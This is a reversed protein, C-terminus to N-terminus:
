KPNLIKVVAQLHQPANKITADKEQLQMQMTAIQQEQVTLRKQLETIESTKNDCASALAALKGHLKEIITLLSQVTKQEEEFDKLPVFHIRPTVQNAFSTNITTQNNPNNQSVLDTINSAQNSYTSNVVPQNNQNNQSVLLSNSDLITTTTTTLSQNNQSNKIVLKENRLIYDLARQTQYSCSINKLSLFCITAILLLSQKTKM